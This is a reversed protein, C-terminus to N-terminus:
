KGFSVSQEGSARGSVPLLFGMACKFLKYSKSLAETLM